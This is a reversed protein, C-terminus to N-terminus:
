ISLFKYKSYIGLCRHQCIESDFKLEPKMFYLPLCGEAPFTISVAKQSWFPIKCSLIKKLLKCHISFEIEVSQHFKLDSYLSLSRSLQVLFNNNCSLACVWVTLIVWFSRLCNLHSMWVVAMLLASKWSFHIDIYWWQYRFLIYGYVSNFMEFSFFIKLFFKNFIEVFFLLKNLKLFILIKFDGLFFPSIIPAHKLFYHCYQSSNRLPHFRFFQM